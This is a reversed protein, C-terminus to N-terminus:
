QRRNTHRKVGLYDDMSMNPSIQPSYVCNEYLLHIAKSIVIVPILPSTFAFVYRSIWGSAVTTIRSSEGVIPPTQASCLSYGPKLDLLKSPVNSNLSKGMSM